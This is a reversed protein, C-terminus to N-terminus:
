CLGRCRVIRYDLGSEMVDHVIADELADVAARDLWYAADFLAAAKEIIRGSAEGKPVMIYTSRMVGVPATHMSIRWHGIDEKIMQEAGDEARWSRIKSDIETM